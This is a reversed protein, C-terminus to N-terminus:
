VQRAWPGLTLKELADISQEFKAGALMSGEILGVRVANAYQERVVDFPLSLFLASARKADPTATTLNKLYFM